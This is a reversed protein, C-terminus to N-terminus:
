ADYAGTVFIVGSSLLNGSSFSFEIANILGMVSTDDPYIGIYTNTNFAAGFTSFEFGQTVGSVANVVRLLTLRGYLGSSNWNAGVSIQRPIAVFTAGNDTSVRFRLFSTTAVSCRINSLDYYTTSGTPLDTILFTSAAPPVVALYATRITQLKMEDSVVDRDIPTIGNITATNGGAADLYVPSRTQVSANLGGTYLSTGDTTLNPSGTLTGANNYIIQTTSGVSFPTDAFVVGGATGDSYVSRTTGREIKLPTGGGASVMYLSWPGGSADTTNNIVVWQGATLLPVQLTVDATLAGVCRLAMNGLDSTTLVYSGSTATVNVATGFAKEIAAFNANLPVDWNLTGLSPSTIGKTVTM